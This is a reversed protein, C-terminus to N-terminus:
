RSHPSIKSPGQFIASQKHYCDLSQRFSFNNRKENYM